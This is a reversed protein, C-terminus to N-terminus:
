RERSELRMVGLYRRWSEARMRRASEVTDAHTLLAAALYRCLTPSFAAALPVAVVMSALMLFVTM